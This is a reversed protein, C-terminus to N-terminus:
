WPLGLPGALFTPGAKDKSCPNNQILQQRFVNLDFDTLGPEPIEWRLIDPLETEHPLRPLGRGRPGEAVSRQLLERVRLQEEGRPQPPLSGDPHQEQQPLM